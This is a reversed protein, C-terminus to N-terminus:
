RKSYILFHSDLWSLRTLSCINFSFFLHFSSSWLGLNCLHLCFLTIPFSSHPPIPLHTPSIQHSPNGLTCHVSMTSPKKVAKGLISTGTEWPYVQDLALSLHPYTEGNATCLVRQLPFARTSGWTASCCRGRRQHPAASTLTDSLATPVIDSTHSATRPTPFPGHCPSPAM